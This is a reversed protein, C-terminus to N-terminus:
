KPLYILSTIKPRAASAGHMRETEWALQKEEAEERSRFIQKSQKAGPRLTGLVRYSVVGKRPPLPKITFPQSRLPVCDKDGSPGLQWVGANEPTNAAKPSYNLYEGAPPAASELTKEIQVVEEKCAVQTAKQAPTGV